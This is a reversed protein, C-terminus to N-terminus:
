KIGASEHLYATWAPSADTCQVYIYVCVYTISIADCCKSVDESRLLIMIALKLESNEILYVLKQLKIHGRALSLILSVHLFPSLALAHTLSSQVIHLYTYQFKYGKDGRRTYFVIWRTVPPYAFDVLSFWSRSVRTQSKRRARSSARRSRGRQTM